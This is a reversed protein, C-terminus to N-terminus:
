CGREEVRELCSREEEVEARKGEEVGELCDREEEVLVGRGKM